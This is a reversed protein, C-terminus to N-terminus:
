FIPQSAGDYGGFWFVALVLIRWFPLATTYPSQDPNKSFASLAGSGLPTFNATVYRLAASCLFSSFVAFAYRSLGAETAQQHPRTTLAQALQRPSATQSNTSKTRKHRAAVPSPSKSAPVPPPPMGNADASASSVSQSKQRARRAMATSSSADTSTIPHSIQPDHDPHIANTALEILDDFM